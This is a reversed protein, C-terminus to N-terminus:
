PEKFEGAHQHTEIVNGADDYIRIVADYWRSYFEATAHPVETHWLRGFPLADSILDVGRHGRGTSNFPPSALCGWAFLRCRPFTFREKKRIVEKKQWKTGGKKLSRKPAGLDQDSFSWVYSGEGEGM